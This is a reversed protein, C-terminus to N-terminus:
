LAEKVIEAKLWEEAYMKKYRRIEAWAGEHTVHSTSGSWM